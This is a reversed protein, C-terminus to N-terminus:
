GSCSRDRRLLGAVSFQADVHVTGARAVDVRSWDGEREICADGATVTWYPTYHIRVLYPGPKRV